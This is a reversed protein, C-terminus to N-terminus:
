SAAARRAPHTIFFCIRKVGARCMLIPSSMAVSQNALGCIKLAPLFHVLADFSRLEARAAVLQPLDPWVVLETIRALHFHQSHPMIAQVVILLGLTNSSAKAAPIRISANPSM